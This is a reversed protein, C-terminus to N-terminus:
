EIVEDARALLKDPFQLGLAKATKLSAPEASLARYRDPQAEAFRWEIVFDRGEVYGLERMSDLFGGFQSTEFSAPRAAASLWGIRWVKDAPQAWAPISALVPAAAAGAVAAILDRRPMKM